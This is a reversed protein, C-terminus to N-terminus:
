MQWSPKNGNEDDKKFPDVENKDEKKNLDALSKNVEERWVEAFLKNTIDMQKPLNFSTKAYDDGVMDTWVFRKGEYDRAFHYIETFQGPIIAGVKSGYSVLSSTKAVTIARGAGSIDLRPLPHATWINFWPLAKCMDLCQTVMSTEVKYEDFDPVFLDEKKVNKREYMSWNVASSSFNTVSDLVHAVYKGPNQQQKVLFNYYEHCNPASYSEYHIRDLLEPRHKKFFTFIETPVRKDFYALFVDGFVAYSCAAITKGFGPDSKLLISVNKDPVISSAKPM